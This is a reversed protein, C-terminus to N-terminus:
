QNNYLLDQAYKIDVVWKDLALITNEFIQQNSTYYTPNIKFELWNTPSVFKNYEKTLSKSLKEAWKKIETNLQDYVALLEAQSWWDRMYWLWRIDVWLQLWLMKTNYLRLDVSKLISPAVDVTKIDKILTNAFPIWSKSTWQYKEKLDKVFQEWLLKWNQGWAITWDLLYITSPDANNEYHAINTDRIAHDLLAEKVAWSFVCSWYWKRDKNPKIITKSYLQIKNWNYYVDYEWQNNKQIMINRNDLVEVKTTHWIKDVVTPTTVKMGCCLLMNISNFIYETWDWEDSFINELEELMIKSLRSTVEKWDKDVMSIFNMSWSLVDMFRSIVTNSEWLALSTNYSISWRNIIDVISNTYNKYWQFFQVQQNNDTSNNM